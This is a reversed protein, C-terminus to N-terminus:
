NSWEFKKMGPIELKFNGRIQGAHARAPTMAGYGLRARYCDTLRVTDVVQSPTDMKENTPILHVDDFFEIVVHSM